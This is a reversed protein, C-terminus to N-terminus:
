VARSFAPRWLNQPWDCTSRLDAARLSHTAEPAATHAQTKHASPHLLNFPCVAPEHWYGGILSGIASFPLRPHTEAAGDGDFSLRAIHRM